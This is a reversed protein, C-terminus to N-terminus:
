VVLGEVRLGVGWVTFGVGGFGLGRGQKSSELRALDRGRIM